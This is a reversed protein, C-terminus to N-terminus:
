AKINHEAEYVSVLKEVVDTLYSVAIILNGIAYRKDGDNAQSLRERIARIQEKLTM